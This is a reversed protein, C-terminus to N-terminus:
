GFGHHSCTRQHNWLRLKQSFSHMYTLILGEFYIYSNGTSSHTFTSASWSSCSEVRCIEM